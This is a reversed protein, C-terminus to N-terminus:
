CNPTADAFLSRKIDIYAINNANLWVSMFFPNLHALVFQILMLTTQRDNSRM